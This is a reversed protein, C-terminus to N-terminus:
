LNYYKLGIKDERRSELDRANFFVFFLEVTSFPKAPYVVLTARRMSNRCPPWAEFM